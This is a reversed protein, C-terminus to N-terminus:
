RGRRQLLAECYRILGRWESGFVAISRAGALQPRLADYTAIYRLHQTPFGDRRHLLLQPYAEEGTVYMTADGEGRVIVGAALAEHVLAEGHALYHSEFLTRDVRVGLRAYTEDHGDLVWRRVDDFLRGATADGTRWRALLEEAADRHMVRERALAADGDRAPDATAAARAPM